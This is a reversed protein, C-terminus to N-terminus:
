GTCFILNGMWAGIEKVTVAAKEVSPQDAAKFTEGEKDLQLRKSREAGTAAREGQLCAFSCSAAAM